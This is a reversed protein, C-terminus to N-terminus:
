NPDITDACADTPTAAVHGVLPVIDLAASGVATSFPALVLPTARVFTEAASATGQGAVGDERGGRDSGAFRWNKRNHIDVSDDDVHCSAILSGAM